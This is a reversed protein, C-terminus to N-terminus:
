QLTKLFNEVEKKSSEQLHPPFYPILELIKQASEKAKEIEELKQYAAALYAYLQAKKIEDKTIKILKLYVDPLREYDGTRIYM